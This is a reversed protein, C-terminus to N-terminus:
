KRVLSWDSIDLEEPIRVNDQMNIGVGPLDKILPISFKQLEAHPGIGSLKLIQPSNFVGGSIIVERSAFVQILTGNNKPSYRPDAKYMSQGQLFEVGIATPTRATKSFLVRTVLSNLQLTLPHKKADEITAKIYLAPSSRLGNSTGHTLAGFIGVEQDRNLDAANNDRTLYEALKPPDGRTNAVALAAITTGGDSTNTTWPAAAQSIDLWGNFGHTPTSGNTLYDCRELKVLYKRMAAAEWSLDGTLDAVYQWDADNPLVVVGANHMACGGLTAARPYWVGLRESGPPGNLGVYFSGNTQKFVTHQYKKEREEDHSHAVFFDWRTKPDSDALVANSLISTNTNATQDDGAELLLVSHGARALNAALPGGGAGSGVVIFEYTKPSPSATITLAFLYPILWFINKM